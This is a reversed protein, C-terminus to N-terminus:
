RARVREESIKRGDEWIAKLVVVGNMYLEETEQKGDTRVLRELVGNRINRELIRNGKGDYEYEVLREEEGEIQLAAIIREGSWTNQLVWVTKDAKNLLTQTLVRGREDTTYVMRSGEDVPSSGFFDSLPPLKESFFTSDSAADLIRNPFTLRVPGAEASEHYLREVSRLSASRNYRYVDTYIAHAAEDAIKRRAEAKVLTKNRYMYETITEGEGPSYLHERTIQYDTNYVEIFGSIAPKAPVPEAPAEGNEGAAEAAAPADEAAPSEPENPSIPASAQAAPEAVDPPPEPERQGGTEEPKEFVAVLRSYGAQDRFIWQKRTEVANAYLARIEIQFSPEYFPSLEPPLEDPGLYDIVLAYENRLAALRSPIEQLAMGGANSRYWRPPAPPTWAAAAAGEQGTGSAGSEPATGAPPSDPALGEGNQPAEQTIAIFVAGLLLLLALILVGITKRLVPL